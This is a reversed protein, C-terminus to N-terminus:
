ALVRRGGLYFDSTVASGLVNDYASSNEVIGLPVIVNGSSSPPGTGTDGVVAVGATTSLYLPSGNHSVAGEGAGLLVSVRGRTVIAGLSGDTIDNLAVGVCNSASNDSTADALSVESDGSVYVLSGADIDSGTNNTAFLVSGARLGATLAENIAGIISTASYASDLSSDLATNFVVSESLSTFTVDTEAGLTLTGTATAGSPVVTVAQAILTGAASTQLTVGVGSGIVILSASGDSFLSVTSQSGHISSCTLGDTQSNSERLHAVGADRVLAKKNAM